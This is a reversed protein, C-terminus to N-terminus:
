NEDFLGKLFMLYKSWFCFITQMNVSPLILYGKFYKKTLFIGKGNYYEKRLSRRVAIISKLRCIKLMIEIRILFNRNQQASLLIMSRQLLLSTQNKVSDIGTKSKVLTQWDKEHTTNTTLSKRGGSQKWAPWSLGKDQGLYAKIRFISSTKYKTEFHM